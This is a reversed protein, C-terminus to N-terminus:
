INQHKKRVPNLLVPKTLNEIKSFTAFVEYTEPM